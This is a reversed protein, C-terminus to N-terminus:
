DGNRQGNGLSTLGLGLADSRQELSVDCQERHWRERRSNLCEGFGCRLPDGGSTGYAVFGFHETDVVFNAFRALTPFPGVIRVDRPALLAAAPEPATALHEVLNQKGGLM